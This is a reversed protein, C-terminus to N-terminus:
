VISKMQLLKLSITNSETWQFEDVELCFMILYKRTLPRSPLSDWNLKCKWELNSQIDPYISHIRHDTFIWLLFALPTLFLCLSIKKFRSISTNFHWKWGLLSVIGIRTTCVDSLFVNSCDGYTFIRTMKNAEKRWKTVAAM